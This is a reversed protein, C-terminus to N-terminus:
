RTLKATHRRANQNFRRNPAKFYTDPGWVAAGILNKAAAEAEIPGELSYGKVTRYASSMIAEWRGDPLHRVESAPPCYRPRSPLERAEELADPLDDSFQM